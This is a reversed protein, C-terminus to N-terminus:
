LKGTGVCVTEPRLLRAGEMAANYRAQAEQYKKYM